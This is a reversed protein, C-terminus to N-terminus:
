DFQISDIIRDLEPKVFEGRYSTDIFLFCDKTELLYNKQLVTFGKLHLESTRTLFVQGSVKEEKIESFNKFLPSSTLLSKAKNLFSVGTEGPFYERKVFSIQFGANGQWAEQADQRYKNINVLFKPAKNATTDGMDVSESLLESGMKNRSEIEEKNLILWNKPIVVSFNFYSNSYGRDTLTGKALIQDYSQRDDSTCSVIFLLPLWKFYYRM